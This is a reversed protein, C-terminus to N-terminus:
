LKPTQKATALGPFCRGDLIAGAEMM